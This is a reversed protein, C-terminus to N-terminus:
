ALKHLACEYLSHLWVLTEAFVFRDDLYGGKMDHCALVKARAEGTSPLVLPVRCRLASDGPKWCRVEELSRLPLSTKVCVRVCLIVYYM